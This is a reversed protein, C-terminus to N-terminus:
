QNVRRITIRAVPNRWDRLAPDLDGVGHIGAHIHVYGEGGGPVGGAGPGGCEIFNPGPISACTEDNRETGADYAPSLVTVTDLGNPGEAENVAFFGDNAPILMAAVSVNDLSGSGRVRQTVSQGPGLLGGSNVVERVDPNGLLLATLPAINGEEALARLQPSAPSGLEFLRVGAKHSAVLVPTFQQGRTLNTVTVEYEMASAAGAAGLLLTVGLASLLIRLCKFADM